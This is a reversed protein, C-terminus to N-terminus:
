GRKGNTKDFLSNVMQFFPCAQLKDFKWFVVWLTFTIDLEEASIPLNM